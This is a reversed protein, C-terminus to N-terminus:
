LVPKVQQSGAEMPAQGQGGGQAAQMAAQVESLANGMHQAFQEGGPQGQASEALKQLGAMVTNLVDMASSSQGEPQGEPAGEQPMPMEPM